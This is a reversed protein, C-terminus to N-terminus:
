LMDTAGAKAEEQREEKMVTVASLLCGQIMKPNFFLRQIEIKPSRMQIQGQIWAEQFLLPRDRAQFHPLPIGSLIM